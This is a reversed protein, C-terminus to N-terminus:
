FVKENIVFYDKKGNYFDKIDLIKKGPMQLKKIVVNGDLCSIKLESSNYSIITGPEVNNNDKIEYDLSFVKIKENKYIFHVGPNLTLARMINKIKYGCDCFNLHEMEKTIKHTFTVEDKNQEEGLNIKNVVDLIGKDFCKYCADIFKNTLTTYNDNPGISIEEKFFMKGADMEDVMEMLTVGTVKDGSLLAYQIPAAGRYKPLLSGHLNFAGLTPIELMEHPIIQGYALTLILNIGLYKIFLYDLRIKEKQYVPISYKNAIVKTPVPILNHKRDREKDCQAIVGVINYGNNILKELVMASLMPTGLYLIKLDEKNIM